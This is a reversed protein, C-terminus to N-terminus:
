GCSVAFTGRLGHGYQICDFRLGEAVERLVVAAKRRCFYKYFGCFITPCFEYTVCVAKNEPLIRPLKFNFEDQCSFSANSTGYLEVSDKPEMVYLGQGDTTLGINVELKLFFTSSRINVFINKGLGLV